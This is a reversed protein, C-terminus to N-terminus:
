YDYGSLANSLESKQQPKIVNGCHFCCIADVSIAKQCFPCWQKRKRRVSRRDLANQDVPYAMIILIALPGLCMGIIGWVFSSMGKRSAIDSAFYMCVAWVVLVALLTGIGFIAFLGAVGSDNQM